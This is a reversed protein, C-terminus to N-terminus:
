RQRIEDAIDGLLDAVAVAPVEAYQNQWFRLIVLRLQEGFPEKHPTSEGGADADEEEAEPESEDESAAAAEDQEDPPADDPHEFYGACDSDVNAGGCTTATKAPEPDPSEAPVPDAKPKALLKLAADLTLDATTQAKAEIEDWRKAIRMYAEATRASGPFFTVLWAEWDGHAVEEKAEVLLDGSEKAVRLSRGALALFEGHLRKLQQAITALRKGSATTLETAM